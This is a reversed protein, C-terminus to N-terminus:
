VANDEIQKAQPCLYVEEDVWAACAKQEAHCPAGGLLACGGLGEEDEGFFQGCWGCVEGNNSM